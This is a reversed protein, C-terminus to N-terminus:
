ASHHDLGPQHPCQRVPGIRGCIISTFAGVVFATAVVYIVMYLYEAFLFSMAGDAIVKPIENTQRLCEDDHAKTREGVLLGKGKTSPHGDVKVQGVAIWEKASWLVDLADPGGM